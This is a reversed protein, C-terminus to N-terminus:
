KKGEWTHIRFKVGKYEIVADTESGYTTQSKITDDGRYKELVQGYLYHVIVHQVQGIELVLQVFRLIRRKCGDCPGYPGLLILQVVPPPDQRLIALASSLVGVEGDDQSVVIEADDGILSFKSSLEKNEGLKNGLEGVTGSLWGFVWKPNGGQTGVKALKLIDNSLKVANSSSHNIVPENRGENVVKKEYQYTRSSLISSYERWFASEGGQKYASVLRSKEGGSLDDYTLVERILEHLPRERQEMRQLSRGGAPGPKTPARQAPHPPLTATGAPAARPM